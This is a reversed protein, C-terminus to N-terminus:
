PEDGPARQERYQEGAQHDAGSAEGAPLRQRRPLSHNRHEGRESPAFHRRADEARLARRHGATDHHDRHEGCAGREGRPDVVEPEVALAVVLERDGLERVAPVWQALGRRGAARVREEGRVVAGPRPYLRREREQDRAIELCCLHDVDDRERRAETQAHARERVGADRAPPPRHEDGGGRREIWHGHDLERREVDVPVEGRHQNAEGRDEQEGHRPRARQEQRHARHYDHEACVRLEGAHHVRQREHRGCRHQEQPARVRPARDPPEHRCVGERVPDRGGGDPKMRVHRARESVAM